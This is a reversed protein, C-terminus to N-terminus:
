PWARAAQASLLMTLPPENLLLDARRAQRRAEEADGAAVAVMGQTLARYGKLRRGERRRRAIIAPAGALFRWLRYLVAALVGVLVSAAVLLGIYTDIRYGLWDISVRGSQDALWAIGAALLIFLLFRITARMM